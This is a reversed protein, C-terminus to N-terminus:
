LFLGAAFALALVAYQYKKMILLVSGLIVAGVLLVIYVQPLGSVLILYGSLVYYRVALGLVLGLVGFLLLRLGIKM